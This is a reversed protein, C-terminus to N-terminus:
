NIAENACNYQNVTNVCMNIIACICYKIKENKLIARINSKSQGCAACCWESIM